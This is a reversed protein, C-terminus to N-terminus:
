AYFNRRRREEDLGEAGSLFYGPSNLYKAMDALYDPSKSKRLVFLLIALAIPLIFVLPLALITQGFIMNMVASFLLVLILDQADMGLIKIRSDLSRHVRSTDIENM